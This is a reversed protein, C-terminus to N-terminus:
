GTAYSSKSWAAVRQAIVEGAWVFGARALALGLLALLWPQADALTQRQLFVRTILGSLLYAQGVVLLSTLLGAGVTLLLHPRASRNQQLLFRSARM